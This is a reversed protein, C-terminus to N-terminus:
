RSTGAWSYTALYRAENLSKGGLWFTPLKESSWTRSFSVAALVVPCQRRSRPAARAHLPMAHLNGDLVEVLAVRIGPRDVIEVVVAPAPLVAGHATRVKMEEPRVPRVPLFERDEDGAAPCRLSGLM